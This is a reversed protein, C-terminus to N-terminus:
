AARRPQGPQAEEVRRSQPLQLRAKRESNFRHDREPRQPQRPVALAVQSTRVSQLWGREAGGSPRRTATQPRPAHQAPGGAGHCNGGGGGSSPVRGGRQLRLRLGGATIQAAGRLGGLRAGAVAAAQAVRRGRRLAAVHSPRAHQDRDARAAHHPARRGGAAVALAAQVVLGSGQGVHAGGEAGHAAARQVRAGALVRARLLPVDRAAHERLRNRLAGGVERWPDAPRLHTSRTPCAAPCAPRQM